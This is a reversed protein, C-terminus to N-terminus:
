ARPRMTPQAEKPQQQQEAGESYSSAEEADGRVSGGGVFGSTPDTAGKRAGGSEKPLAPSVQGETTMTQLLQQVLFILELLARAQDDQKTAIAQLEPAVPATEEEVSGAPLAPM